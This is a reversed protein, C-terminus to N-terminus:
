RNGHTGCDDCSIAHALAPVWGMCHRRWRLHIPVLREFEAIEREINAVVKKATALDRLKRVLAAKAKEGEEQAIQKRAEETVAKIDIM